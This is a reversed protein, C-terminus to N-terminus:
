SCKRSPATPCATVRPDAPSSNEQFNKGGTELDLDQTEGFVLLWRGLLRVATRVSSKTQAFVGVSRQSFSSTFSDKKVSCLLKTSRLGQPEGGSCNPTKSYGSPNRQLQWQPATSYNLFEGSSFLGLPKDHGIHCPTQEM